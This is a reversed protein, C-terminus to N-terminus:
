FPQAEGRRRAPLWLVLLVATMMAAQYLNYWGQVFMRDLGAGGSAEPGLLYKDYLGRMAGVLAAAVLLLIHRNRAFSIGERKGSRSLLYFSAVALVVGAWQWANLREGYILMAGLLTLVPRTANIPGVITLPLQKIAFYGCLWSSLVICSKLVVFAHAAPTGGPIYYASGEGIAGVGSGVIGPLFLACCICTTICPVPIVANGRLAHKQCVDYCGLLVASLLAFALWM